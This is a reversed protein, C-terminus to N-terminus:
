VTVHTVSPAWTFVMGIYVMRCVFSQGTVRRTVSPAWTFVLFWFGYWHLGYPLRFKSWYGKPYNFPFGLFPCFFFSVVWRDPFERVCCPIVTIVQLFLNGSLSIPLRSTGVWGLGCWCIANNRETLYSLHTMKM